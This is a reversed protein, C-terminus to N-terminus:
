THAHSHLFLHFHSCGPTQFDNNEQWWLCDCQVTRELILAEAQFAVLSELNQLFCFRASKRSIGSPQSEVDQALAVASQETPEDTESVAALWNGKREKTSAVVNQHFVLDKEETVSTKPFLHLALCCWVRPEVVTASARQCEPMFTTRMKTELNSSNFTWM